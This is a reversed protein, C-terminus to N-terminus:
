PKFFSRISSVVERVDADSLAPHMPISVVEKSIGETNPLHFGSLGLNKHFHNPTPWSILVGIGRSKLHKVLGDRKM